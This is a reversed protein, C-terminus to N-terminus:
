DIAAARSSRSGEVACRAIAVEAADFAVPWPAAFLFLDVLAYLERLKRLEDRTPLTAVQSAVLAAIEDAALGLDRLDDGLASSWRL